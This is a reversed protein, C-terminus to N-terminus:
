VRRPSSWRESIMSLAVLGSFDFIRRESVLPVFSIMLASVAISRLFTVEDKQKLKAVGILAGANTSATSMIREVACDAADSAFGGDIRAEALVNRVHPTAEM